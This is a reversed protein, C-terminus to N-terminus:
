YSSNEERYEAFRENFFKVPEGDDYCAPYYVSNKLLEKIPFTDNKISIVSITNVGM